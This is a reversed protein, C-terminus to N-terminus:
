EVRVHHTADICALVQVDIEKSAGSLERDKARGQHPRTYSKEPVVGMWGFDEHAVGSRQCQTAREGRDRNEELRFEEENEDTRHEHRLHHRHDNLPEHELVALSSISDLVRALMPDELSGGEM